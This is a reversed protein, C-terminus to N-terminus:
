KLLKAIQKSLDLNRSAEPLDSASLERIGTIHRNTGRLENKEFREVFEKIKAPGDADYLIDDILVAAHEAINKDSVLVVIKGGYVIQLAQAFVVCGGDFPGSDITDILLSYIKNKNKWYFAESVLEKIKM